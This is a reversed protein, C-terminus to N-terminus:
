WTWTTWRHRVTLPTEGLLFTRIDTRAGKSLLLRGIHTQGELAAAGLATQGISNQANIDIGSELFRNFVTMDGSGAAYFWWGIPANDAGRVYIAARIWCGYPAFQIAISLAFVGVLIVNAWSGIRRKAISTVEFALVWAGALGVFLFFLLPGEISHPSWLGTLSTGDGWLLGSQRYILEVAFLAPGLV